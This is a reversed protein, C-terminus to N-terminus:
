MNYLGGIENQTPSHISVVRTEKDNHASAQERKGGVSISGTPRPSRGNSEEGATVTEMASRDCLTPNQLLHFLVCNIANSVASLIEVGKSLSSGDELLYRRGARNLRFIAGVDGPRSVLNIKPLSELKYNKKLINAMHKNEVDTLHVNGYNLQLRKLTTNEQLSTVLAACEEAKFTNRSNRISLTELSTNDQLMAAVDVQFASLFPETFGHQPDVELSKLVKNIRLFSLTRCWM